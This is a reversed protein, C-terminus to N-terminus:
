GRSRSLVPYMNWYARCVMFRSPFSPFPFSNFSSIYQLFPNSAWLSSAPLFTHPYINLGATNKIPLGGGADLCRSGTDTDNDRHQRGGARETDTDKDRHQRHRQRQATQTKTETSDAEQERQSLSSEASDRLGLQVHIISLEM